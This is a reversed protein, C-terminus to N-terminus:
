QLAVIREFGLVPLSKDQSLNLETSSAEIFSIRKEQRFDNGDYDTSSINYKGDNIDLFFIRDKTYQVKDVNGITSAINQQRLEKIHQGNFDSKIIKM